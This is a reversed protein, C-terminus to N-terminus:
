RYSVILYSLAAWVNRDGLKTFCVYGFVFFFM